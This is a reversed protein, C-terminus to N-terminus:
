RVRDGARSEPRTWERRQQKPVLPAKPSRLTALGCCCQIISEDPSCDLRSCTLYPAYDQKVEHEAPVEGTDENGGGHGGETTAM